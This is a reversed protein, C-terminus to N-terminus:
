PLHYSTQLVAYGERLEGLCIITLFHHVSELKQFSYMKLNGNWKGVVTLSKNDLDSGQHIVCLHFPFNCVLALPLPLNRPSATDPGVCLVNSLM